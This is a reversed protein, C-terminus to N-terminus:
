SQSQPRGPAPFSAQVKPARSSALPEQLGQQLHWSCFQSALLCSGVQQPPGGEALPPASLSLHLDYSQQNHAVLRLSGRVSEGARLELPQM